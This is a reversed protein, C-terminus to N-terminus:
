HTNIVHCGQCAEVRCSGSAGVNGRPGWCGSLVGSVVRPSDGIDGVEGVPTVLLSAAALLGRLVVRLFKPDWLGGPTNQPGLAPLDGCLTGTVLATQASGQRVRQVEGRPRPPEWPRPTAGDGGWLRGCWSVPCSNAEQLGM